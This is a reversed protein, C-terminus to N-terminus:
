IETRRSGEEAEADVEEGEESYRTSAITTCGKTKDLYKSVQKIDENRRSTARAEGKAENEVVRKEVHALRRHIKNQNRQGNPQLGWEWEWELELEL